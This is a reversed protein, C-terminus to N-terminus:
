KHFSARWVDHLMGIGFQSLVKEHQPVSTLKLEREGAFERNM